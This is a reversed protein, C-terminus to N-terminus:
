KKIILVEPMAGYFAMLFSDFDVDYEKGIPDIIHFRNENFSNIIVKHSNNISSRNDIFAPRIGVLIFGNENILRKLKEINLREIKIEGNLNLFEITKDVYFKGIKFYKKSKQKLSNILDGHLNNAIIPNFGIYKVKFGFKLATIGLSILPNIVGGAIKYFKHKELIEKETLDKGYYNFISRLCAIGCSKDTEQKFIKM